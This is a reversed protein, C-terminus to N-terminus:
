RYYQLSMRFAEFIEDYITAERDLLGEGNEVATRLSTILKDFKPNIGMSGDNYELVKKTHTLMRKHENAFHVPVVFMNRIHNFYCDSNTIINADKHEEINWIWFPKKWVRSSIDQSVQDM